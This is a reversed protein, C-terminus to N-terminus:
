FIKEFVPQGIRTVPVDREGLLEGRLGDLARFREPSFGNRSTVDQMLNGFTASPVRTHKCRRRGAFPQQYREGTLLDCCEFHCRSEYFAVLIGQLADESQAKAEEEEPGWAGVLAHSHAQVEEEAVRLALKHDRTSVGSGCTWRPSIRIRVAEGSRRGRFDNLRKEIEM